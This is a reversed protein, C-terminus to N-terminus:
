GANPATVSAVRAPTQEFLMGSESQVLYDSNPNNGLQDLAAQFLQEHKQETEGAYAFTLAANELGAERAIAAYRPYMQTAEGKEGQIPVLLNERTSKVQVPELPTPKPQQGLARLVAQHNRLHIRESLAAARFLKAVQGYGEEDARQAFQDYRNAANAEGTAAAQLNEITTARAKDQPSGPPPAQQKPPQPAAQQAVSVLPVVLSGALVAAM